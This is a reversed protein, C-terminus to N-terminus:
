HAHKSGADKLAAASVATPLRPQEIGLLRADLASGRAPSLV